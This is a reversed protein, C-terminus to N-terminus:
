QMPAIGESEFIKDIQDLVLMKSAPDQEFLAKRFLVNLRILTEQQPTMEKVVPLETTERNEILQTM